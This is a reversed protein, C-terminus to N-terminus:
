SCGQSCDDKVCLLDVYLRGNDTDLFGLLLQVNDDQPVFPGISDGKKFIGPNLAPSFLNPITAGFIGSAGFDIYLPDNEYGTCVPNPSGGLEIGGPPMAVRAM